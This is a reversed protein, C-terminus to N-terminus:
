FAYRMAICLMDHMDFTVTMHYAVLWQMFTYIEDQIDFLKDREMHSIQLNFQGCCRIMLCSKGVIELM